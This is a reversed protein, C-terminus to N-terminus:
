EGQQVPGGIWSTIKGTSLNQTAVTVYIDFYPHLQGAPLPISCILTGDPHASTTTESVAISLIASGSNDVLPNTGTDGNYLYFTVTASPAAALMDEDEVVVNWYLRGSNNPSDDIATGKHNKVQPVYIINTGHVHAAANAAISMSECILLESDMIM